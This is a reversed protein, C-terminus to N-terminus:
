LSHQNTNNVIPNSSITSQTHTTNQSNELDTQQQTHNNNTQSYIIEDVVSTNIGRSLSPASPARKRGQQSASLMIIFLLVYYM